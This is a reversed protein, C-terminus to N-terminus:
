KVRASKVKSWKSYFTKGDKKVFGRVKVYYTKKSKLKKLTVSNKKLNVSKKGKTFKKNQAYIVQYGKVKNLKKWQITLTKKKKSKVSGLKVKKNKLPNTVTKVPTKVRKDTYDPVRSEDGVFLMIQNTSIVSGDKYLSAKILANGSKKAYITGSEIIAIVSSDGSEYVIKYTADNVYPEMEYFLLGPGQYGKKVYLWGDRTYCHEEDVYWRFTRGAFSFYEQGNNEFFTNNALVGNEYIQHICNKGDILFGSFAQGPYFPYDESFEGQNIAGCFWINNFYIDELFSKKTPEGNEMGWFKGDQYRIFQPFQIKFLDMGDFTMAVGDVAGNYFHQSIVKKDTEGYVGKLMDYLKWQGNVYAFCWAHGGLDARNYDYAPVNKMDGYFGLVVAAPINLSRLLDKMLESYSMCNGRRDMLTDISYASTQEKFTINKKIWDAIEDVKEQNSKCDKTIKKALTTLIEKEKKTGYELRLGLQPYKKVYVEDLYHFTEETLNLALTDYMNQNAGYVYATEVFASEFLMSCVLLMMFLKQILRKKM